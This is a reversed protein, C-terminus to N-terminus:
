RTKRRKLVRRLRRAAEAAEADKGDTQELVATYHALADELCGAAELVAALNFRLTVDDPHKELLAELIMGAELNGEGIAKLARNAMGNLSARTKVEAEVANPAIMSVFGEACGNLLERIIRDAPPVREPDDPRALGLEGRVRPDDTSAYSRDTELTALPKGAAPGALRFTVHATVSRVLTPVEREQWQKTTENYQRLRRTGREDDTEIAIEGTVEVAHARTDADGDIAWHRSLHRQLAEALVAATAAAQRGAGTVTFTGVRVMRTGEPLPVAAPLEHRVLLVPAACGAMAAAGAALLVMAASRVARM